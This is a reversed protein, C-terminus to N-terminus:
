AAPSDWPHKQSTRPPSDTASRSSRPCPQIREKMLAATTARRKFSAANPADATSFWFHVYPTDALRYPTHRDFRQLNLGAFTFGRVYEV